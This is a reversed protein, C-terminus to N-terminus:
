PDYKCILKLLKLYPGVFLYYTWIGYIHADASGLTRQKQLLCTANVSCLVQSTNRQAVFDTVTAKFCNPLYHIHTHTLDKSHGM